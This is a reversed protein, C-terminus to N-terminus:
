PAHARLAQHHDKGADACTCLSALRHIWTAEGSFVSVKAANKRRTELEAKKEAKAEAKAADAELKEQKEISLTGIRAALTGTITTLEYSKFTLRCPWQTFGPPDMWHVVEIYEL